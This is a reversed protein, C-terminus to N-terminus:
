ETRPFESTHQAEIWLRDTEGSIAIRGTTLAESLYSWVAHVFVILGSMEMTEEITAILVYIMDANQDISEYYAGGVGEFVLSGTVFTMAAIVFLTRTRHPLALVFRFYALAFLATAVAAPIIWGFFLFGQLDFARRMPEIFREHVEIIEDWALLALIFSLGAWHRTWQDRGVRKMMTIGALGLSAGLMLSAQFTTPLNRERDLNTFSVIDREPHWDFARVALQGAVSVIVFALALAVLITTISRLTFTFRM